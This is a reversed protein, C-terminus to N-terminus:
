RNGYWYSPVAAPPAMMPPGYGAAYPNYYAYPNYPYPYYAPNQYSVAQVPNMVPAPARYYSIAPAVGPPPPAPPLPM